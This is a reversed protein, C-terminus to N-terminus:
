EGKTSVIFELYTPAAKEAADGRAFSADKNPQTLVLRAFPQGRFPPAQGLRKLYDPLAERHMTRGKLTLEDAAFVGGTLWIASLHHQALPLFYRSVGASNQNMERQVMQWLLEQQAVEETLRAIEAALEPEQQRRTLANQLDALRKEQETLASSARAVEEQLTAIQLYYYGALALAAAAVIALAIAMTPASFYPKEKLFLPNYLNIQQSM